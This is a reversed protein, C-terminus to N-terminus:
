LQKCPPPPPSENQRDSQRTVVPTPRAVANQGTSKPGNSTGHEAQQSNPRERGSGLLTLEHSGAEDHGYVHGSPQGPPERGSTSTAREIIKCIIAFMLVSGLFIASVIIATKRTHHSGIYNDRIHRTTIIARAATLISNPSLIFSSQGDAPIFLPAM